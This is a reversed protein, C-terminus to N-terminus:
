KRSITQLYPLSNLSGVSESGLPHAATSYKHPNRHPANGVVHAVLHLGATILKPSASEDLPIRIAAHFSRQGSALRHAKRFRGRSLSGCLGWEM